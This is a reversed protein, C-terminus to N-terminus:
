AGGDMVLRLSGQEPHLSDSQLRIVENPGVEYILEQFTKWGFWGRRRISIWEVARVGPVGQIVAELRARELPTGFTFNDPHFFGPPRLLSPRGVLADFVRMKVQGPYAFPEVCIQIELDIDAYSPALVHTERGAQRFRDLQQEAAHRQDATLSTAGRPDTTVFASLWSGTWRFGAGARQVWALREAAEAYDEPRVARYTVARFADPALKRVDDASEADVGESAALPNTVSAGFTLVPIGPFTASPPLHTVSDATVNGRRGHGLRYTVQFATGPAPEQGFEGDGFRITFGEGTAYDRHVIEGGLRQYGVVRRWEGDDLTYHRDGPESSNTGLLSRRWEWVDHETWSVGGFTATALRIEPQADRPDGGLWVLGEADPDPLSFLYAISGEPGVREVARPLGAPSSPGIGFRQQVTRGATAPVLNGRVTLSDIEMEFPLAQDDEWVIRTINASTGLAAGLPDIEDAVTTARVLHRRVPIAPDIPQTELLLWRGTPLDPPDDFPLFDAAHHGDVHLSTTGVFLCTTSEDWLHPALSNRASKLPYVKGAAKEALGRGVEFFIPTGGDSEAWAPTGAPLNHVGPEVTFDLWTRAGLGDHLTYDVLRAHRRLSRRQGATELATERSVRDQFYAFEDGVASMVEALMVGVDAELRDQWDPYRQSAFDLLARRFSWFDRALYDVPFDTSGEPSCEHGPPACDLNSDCNAKFSFRVDNFFPDIRPDDIHLQYLAFGGPEVTTLRLVDRGDAVAWSLGSIAVDPQGSDISHIRVTTPAISGPLPSSLAAPRNLFFVDLTVQDAHVYVFAIGTLVNQALLGNLRDPGAM